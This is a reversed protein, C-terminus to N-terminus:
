GSVDKEGTMIFVVRKSLWDILYFPLFLFTLSIAVIDAQHLQMRLFAMFGRMNFLFELVLLNSLM